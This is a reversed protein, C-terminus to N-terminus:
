CHHNELASAHDNRDWNQLLRELLRELENRETRTLYRLMPSRAVVAAAILDRLEVGHPTLTLLKVRRDTGAVRTILGRQELEDALATVYSRDCGLREALDRMPAPDDLYAIARAVATPIGFSAAIEGFDAKARNVVDILMQSLRTADAM